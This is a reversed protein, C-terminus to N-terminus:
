RLIIFTAPSRRNDEGLVVLTGNKVVGSGSVNRVTLTGGNLDLYRGFGLVLDVGEDVALVAPDLTVYGDIKLVTNGAIAGAFGDLAGDKLTLTSAVEATNVVAGDGALSTFTQDSGVLDIKAGDAVSVASQEPLVNVLKPEAPLAAGWKKALYREVMRRDDDGFVRDYCVVEAIDGWWCRYLYESGAKGAGWYDGIASVQGNIEMGMMFSAVVPVDRASITRTSAGNQWVDGSELWCDSSWTASNSIRIGSDKGSRGFIGVCGWGNKGPHGGTPVRYVIFINKVTLATSSQLRDFDGDFFVTDLGNMAASRFQPMQGETTNVFDFGRGDADKWSTVFGDGNVTLSASVSADLRLTVSEPFPVEDVVPAGLALTGANIETAGAYDGAATLWTLGPDNKVFDDGVFPTQGHLVGTFGDANAFSVKAAGAFVIEGAGKIENSITIPEANVFKLVGGPAVTIPGAGFADAAACEVVGEIVTGGTYVNGAGLAVRGNGALTLPGEGGIGGTFSLRTAGGRARVLTPGALTVAGSAELTRDVCLAGYDPPQMSVTDVLYAYSGRGSLTLANPLLSMASTDPVWIGGGHAASGHVTVPGAAFADNVMPRVGVSEIVTGGTYVNAQHLELSMMRDCSLGGAFTVGGSGALVSKILNPRWAGYYNNPGSLVLGEAAGFDITGGVVSQACTASGGVSGNLLLPAFGTGDGITLTSGTGITLGGEGTNGNKYRLDVGAVHADATLTRAVSSIQVLSDAGGDFADVCAAPVFGREADYSVFSFCSLYGSVPTYFFIPQEPLGSAKLAMTGQTRITANEGLVGGSSHSDLLLVGRGRRVFPGYTATGGTGNFFGVASVGDYSVTCGDNTAVAFPATNNGFLLAGDDLIASGFGFPTGLVSTGDERLLGGTVRTPGTYTADRIVCLAGRGTKALGGDVGVCDPDHRLPMQFRIFSTFSRGGTEVRAGGDGVYGTICQNNFWNSDSPCFSQLLGGNFYVRGDFGQPFDKEAYNVYIQSQVRMTGGDLRLTGHYGPTSGGTAFNLSDVDLVANDRVSLRYSYGDSSIRHYQFNNVGMRLKLVADGSLEAGTGRGYNRLTYSECVGGTMRFFVENDSGSETFWGSIPEEMVVHGGTQLYTRGQGGNFGGTFHLDGGNVTFAFNRSEHSNLFVNTCVGGNIVYNASPTTAYVSGGTMSLDHIIWAHDVTNTSRFTLTGTGSVRNVELTHCNNDYLTGGNLKIERAAVVADAAPDGTGFQLSSSSAELEISGTAALRNTTTYTWANYSQLLNGCGAFTNVMTDKGGYNLTTRVTVPQGEVDEAYLPCDDPYILKCVNFITDVPYGPAFQLARPYGDCSNNLEIQNVGTLADPGVVLHAEDLPTAANATNNSFPVTAVGPQLKLASGCYIRGTFVGPGGKLSLTYIWLNSAVGAGSIGGIFDNKGCGDFLGGEDVDVWGWNVLWNRSDARLVAGSFVHIRDRGGPRFADTDTNGYLVGLEGARVEVGDFTWGANKGFTCARTGDGVNFVGEGTKVFRPCLNQSACQFTSDASVTVGEDVDVVCAGDADKGFYLGNGSSKITLTGEGTARLGQLMAYVGSTITITMSGSVPIVAVTSANPVGASWNPADNWNGISAGIWQTEAASVCGAGLLAVLFTWRNM